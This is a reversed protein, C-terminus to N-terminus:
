PYSCSAPAAGNDTVCTVSTKVTPSCSAATPATAISSVNLYIRGVAGGGGGGGNTALVSANGGVMPDSGAAGGSGGSGANTAGKTGGTAATTPTKTVDWDGGATGANGLASGGGGGGGNAVLEGAVANGIFSAGELLITGGSGGGAAGGNGTGSGGLGGGGSANIIV